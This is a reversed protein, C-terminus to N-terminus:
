TRPLHKEGHEQASEPLPRRLDLRTRDMRIGWGCATPSPPEARTRDEGGYARALEENRRQRAFEGALPSPTVTPIVTTPANWPPTPRPGALDRPVPIGEGTGWAVMGLGDNTSQTTRVALKLGDRYGQRYCSALARRYEDQSIEM